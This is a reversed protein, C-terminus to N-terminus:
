SWHSSNLRTSKRDVEDALALIRREARRCVTRCVHCQAAALSGGPLVFATLPPLLRDISDIAREVAEVQGPTIISAAKLETKRRDTALHSGVAFLTDQVQRLFTKDDGDSLYAVLLGLHANLEDVTGYAELRVDTKAVRTGGVLSTMGKDGTKTYIKM